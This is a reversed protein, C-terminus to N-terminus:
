ARPVATKLAENVSSPQFSALGEQAAYLVLEGRHKLNLKQYINNIHNGVTKPAIAYERAIEKSSRGGAIRVLIERERPTLARRRPRAENSSLQLIRGALPPDLYYDAQKVRGIAAAFRARSASRALYGRAHAHVAEVFQAPDDEPDLLLLTRDSWGLSDILRRWASGRSDVIVVRPAFSLLLQRVQDIGRARAAPHHGAGSLLAELAAVSLQGDAVIGLSSAPQPEGEVLIAGSLGPM